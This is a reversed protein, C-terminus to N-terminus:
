EMEQRREMLYDHHKKINHYQHLINEHLRVDCWNAEKILRLEEDSLKKKDNKKQVNKKSESFSLQGDFKVGLFDGLMGVGEDLKPLLIVFMKSVARQAATLHAETLNQAFRQPVGSLSACVFNTMSLHINETRLFDTVTMGATTKKDREWSPVSQRYFFLSERLEVPDRFTAIFIIPDVANPISMLCHLNAGLSFHPNLRQTQIKRSDVNKLDEPTSCESFKLHFINSFIGKMTTGGAKPIHWYLIVARKSELATLINFSGADVVRDYMSQNFRWGIMREMQEPTMSQQAGALLCSSLFSSLM